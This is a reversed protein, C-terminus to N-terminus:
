LTREILTNLTQLFQDVTPPNTTCPYFTDFIQNRSLGFLEEIADNVGLNSSAFLLYDGEDVRINFYPPFLNYCHGIPCGVDVQGDKMSTIFPYFKIQHPELAVIYDRLMSLNALQSMDQQEM